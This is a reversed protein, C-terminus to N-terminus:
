YPDQRWLDCPRLREWEWGGRSCAPRAMQAQARGRTLTQPKPPLLRPSLAGEGGLPLPPTPSRGRKGRGGTGLAPSPPNGCSPCSRRGTSERSAREGFACRVGSLRCLGSERRRGGTGVLHVGVRGKTLILTADTSPETPVAGVVQGPSRCRPRVSAPSTCPVSMLLCTLAPVTGDQKILFTLVRPGTPVSWLGQSTLSVLLREGRARRAGLVPRLWQKRYLFSDEVLDSVQRLLSKGLSPPLSGGAQQDCVRPAGSQPPSAWWTCLLREALCRRLPTQVKM